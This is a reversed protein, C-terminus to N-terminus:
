GPGAKGDATAARRATVTEVEIDTDSYQTLYLYPVLQPTMHSGM